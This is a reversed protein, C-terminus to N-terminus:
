LAVALAERQGLVRDLVPYALGFLAEAMGDALVAQVDFQGQQGALPEARRGAARPHVRSPTAAAPHITVFVVSLPHAQTLPGM